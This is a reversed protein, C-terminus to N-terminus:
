FCRHHVVGKGDTGSGYHKGLLHSGKIYIICWGRGQGEEMVNVSRTTVGNCNFVDVICRGRGKKGGEMM